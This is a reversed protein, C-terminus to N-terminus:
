RAGSLAGARSVFVAMCRGLARLSGPMRYVDTVPCGVLAPVGGHTIAGPPSRRRGRRRQVCESVLAAARARGAAQANDSRHLSPPLYPRCKLNSPRSPHPLCTFALIHPRCSGPWFAVCFNTCRPTRTRGLRPERTAGVSRQLSSTISSQTTPNANLSSHTRSAMPVQPLVRALVCRRPLRVGSRARTHLPEGEGLNRRTPPETASTTLRPPLAVRLICSGCQASASTTRRFTFRKGVSRSQSVTRDVV